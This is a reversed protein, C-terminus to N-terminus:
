KPCSRKADRVAAREVPTATATAASANAVARLQAADLTAEATPFLEQEEFRVHQRLREGFERLRSRPDDASALLSRLREHDSRTRRVLEVEGAADIPPLLYLEEVEFHPALDADFAEAITEWTSTVDDDTGDAATTEARRALVLAHHHDRSLDLLHPDRKM